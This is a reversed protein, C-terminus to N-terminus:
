ALSYTVGTGLATSAATHTIVAKSMQNSAPDVLAVFNLTLSQTDRGSINATPAEWRVRLISLDLSQTGNTFSLKIAPTSADGDFLKGGSTLLMDYGPIANSGTFDSSTSADSFEITGTIERRQPEPQRVYTRDGISCASDADLNMNYELNISKIKSSSTTHSADDSFTVTGDAFHYGDLAAGGFGPTSGANALLSSVGSESKGMFDVSMTTYEGSAANISLRSVCMGTYTHEKEERGIEFTYSPLVNDRHETMTHVFGSITYGAAGTGVSSTKDGYIGYFCLGLLDDPQAVFNIGGESHEKGNVSKSSGYRSVDMRTLLDFRTQISEDDIEGMMKGSATMASATGYSRAGTATTHEPTM